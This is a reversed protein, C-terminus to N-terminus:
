GKVHGFSFAQCNRVEDYCTAANIDVGQDLLAIVEETKGGGAAELLKRELLQQLLTCLM